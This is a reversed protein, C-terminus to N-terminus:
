RISDPHLRRWYTVPYFAMFGFPKTKAAAIVMGSMLVGLSRRLGAEARQGFRHERRPLTKRGVEYSRAARCSSVLVCTFQM